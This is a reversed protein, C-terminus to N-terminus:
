PLTEVVGGDANAAVTPNGKDQNQQRGIEKGAKGLFQQARQQMTQRLHRCLQQTLRQYGEDPAKGGHLRQMGDPHIDDAQQARRAHRTDGDAEGGLRRQAVDDAAHENRPLVGDLQSVIDVRSRQLARHLFDTHQGDGDALGVVATQTDGTLHQNLIGDGIFRVRLRAAAGNGHPQGVARIQVAHLAQRFLHHPFGGEQHIGRGGAHAKLAEPVAAHIEVDARPALRLIVVFRAIEKGLSEVLGEVSFTDGKGEGHTSHHLLLGSTICGVDPVHHNPHEFPSSSKM